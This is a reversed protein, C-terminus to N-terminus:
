LFRFAVALVRFGQAGLDEYLREIEGRMSGLPAVEGGPREAGSCLPLVHSFAGKTVLLAKGDVAVSVSLRKREFDYPIEDLKRYPGMDFQRSERIARDIPNAYGTEYFANIYAFRLVRESPNGDVSISARLQVTGETLTGTKDSCLVNMSGFNEISPLRKVIVQKEAMRRAGRSLNVSIIAPLLQPTFGVALTLSFLLSDLVPRRFYINFLFIGTVFVVTMLMLFYGFRRIGKEFETVPPKKGLLGSIRGFETSRGTRAVLMKGRGSAVHTGMFVAGTREAIAADSQV